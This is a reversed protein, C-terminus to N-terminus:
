QEPTYWIPSTYAREQHSRPVDADMKMGYFKEDHAQWTPTPIELVRAYYYAPLAPDFDPDTWVGRLEAAGIANTYTANVEDVTSGVPQRARGDEGIERGDSVAVDYIREQRAGEADIWGKIIQVRDLNAASVDKLAGLMFVPATAEGQPPLDGGMPVGRSYGIDVVNPRFVDAGEFDWGGFFRVAIRTGTTAYVEKAQMADFIASRTNERAWVGALGSALAEYEFTSLTEDGNFSQIVYHKWRDPSPESSPMKGWFNDDRTTSVATHADTAGIQGFKFPNIGLKQEQQMGVQLASRAYEYPLMEPMKPNFGGIDGKDWTGYDAFEDDPSLAPHAEGDGKIQTVEIIPEWRMRTEAYEADIPEGNLRETAFMLGNSLNGNHPIAMVSGGTLDEYGQMYAWLDEPDPSDYASFPTVQSAKRGDEKFLVVRHLNSPKELNNISTWEFGIFATFNGPDNYQDALEIQRDWITRDLKPNDIIDRNQAVGDNGWLQFAAYGEGAQVLDYLRQGYETALLDRNAEALMVPLGLNEAHDSVVLFDLPRDIRLRQGSSTIVEEGMAFRYADVPTLTNGIMGADTSFMTHLHTDGWYLGEALGRNKVTREIFPSYNQPPGSVDEEAPGIDQSIAFSPSITVALLALSILRFM